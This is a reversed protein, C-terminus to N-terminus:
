NFNLHVIIKFYTVVIINNVQKLENIRASQLLNKIDVLLAKNLNM